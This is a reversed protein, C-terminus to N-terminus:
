LRGFGSFVMWGDGELFLSQSGSFFRSVCVFSCLTWAVRVSSMLLLKVVNPM